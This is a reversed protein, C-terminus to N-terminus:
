VLGCDSDSDTPEDNALDRIKGGGIREAKTKSVTRM